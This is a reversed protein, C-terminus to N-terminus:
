KVINITFGKESIVSYYGIYGEYDLDNVPNEPSRLPMGSKMLFGRMGSPIKQEINIRILGEKDGVHGPLNPTGNFGYFKARVFVEGEWMERNEIPVDPSFVMKFQNNALSGGSSVLVYGTNTFYETMFKTLSDKVEGLSLYEEGYDMELLKNADVSFTNVYSAANSAVYGNRSEAVFIKGFDIMFLLISMGLLM